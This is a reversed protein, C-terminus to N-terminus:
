VHGLILARLLDAQSAPRQDQDRQDNQDESTPPGAVELALNM